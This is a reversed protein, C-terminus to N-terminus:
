RPPSSGPKIEALRVIVSDEGYGSDQTITLGGGQNIFVDTESTAPLKMNTETVGPLFSMSLVPRFVTKEPAVRTSGSIMM